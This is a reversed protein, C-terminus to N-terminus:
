ASYTQCLFLLVSRCLTNAIMDWRRFTHGDSDILFYFLFQTIINQSHCQMWILIKPSLTKGMKDEPLFEIYIYSFKNIEKFSCM